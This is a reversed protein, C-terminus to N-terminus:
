ELKGRTFGHTLNDILGQLNTKSDIIKAAIGEIEVEHDYPISHLITEMSQLKDIMEPFKKRLKVIVGQVEKRYDEIERTLVDSLVVGYTMRLEICSQLTKNKKERKIRNNNRRSTSITHLLAVFSILFALISIVISM